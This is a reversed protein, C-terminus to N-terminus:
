VFNEEFIDYTKSKRKRSKRTTPFTVQKKGRKGSMKKSKVVPKKGVTDVKAKELATVLSNTVAKKATDVNESVSQKIKKGKLLDSAVNLGADLASRKATNVIEKTVPSQIIKEGFLKLAPIAGKFMATLSSGIGRGRQIYPGRHLCSM